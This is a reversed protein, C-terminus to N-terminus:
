TFRDNRDRDLTIIESVLTGVHSLEDVRPTTLWTSAPADNVNLLTISFEISQLGVLTYMTM